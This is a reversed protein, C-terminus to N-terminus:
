DEEVLLTMSDAAGNGPGQPTLVIEFISEVGEESQCYVRGGMSEILKKTMSLGLGTGKSGKTTFFPLFIEEIKDAPVGCGNDRVSVRISGDDSRQTRVEILGQTGDEMAESANVVLNLFAKYFGQDDMMQDPITPDLDLSLSISKKELDSRVYEVTEQIIQNVNAQKREAKRQHSFELMEKVMANLRDLGRRIVGWTRDLAEYNKRELCNNLLEIGGQTLLLINKINHAMGTITQGIAAMQKNHLMEHRMQANDLLIAVEATLSTFFALDAEGFSRKAESTDVFCIALVRDRSVLPACMASRIDHLVISDSHKFRSDSMADRSLVAVRDKLCRDIITKSIAINAGESRPGRFKAQAPVFEAEEHPRALIVGRDCPLADFILDLTTRYIGEPETQDGLQKHFEYLTSLLKRARNLSAADTIERHFDRTQTTESAKTEKQVVSQLESDGAPVLRVRSETGTVPTKEKGGAALPRCNFIFTVNGFSVDDQDTLLGETIRARNIYTGNSSGLDVAYVERGRVEIRAHFRSVSELPLSIDNSPHRGIATLARKITYSPKLQPSPARPVLSIVVGQLWDSM